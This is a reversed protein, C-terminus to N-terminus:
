MNCIDAILTETYLYTHQSLPVIDQCIMLYSYFEYILLRNYFGKINITCTHEIINNTYINYM